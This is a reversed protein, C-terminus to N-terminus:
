DKRKYEVSVNLAENLVLTKEYRRVNGTLPLEVEVPEVGQGMAGAEAQATARQQVQARQNATVVADSPMRPAASFSQVHRVSGEDSRKKVKVSEPVWLQWQLQSTPVDVVPLDASLRGRKELAPENTVYVLEVSFASM